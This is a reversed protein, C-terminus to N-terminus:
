TGGTSGGRVPSSSFGFSYAGEVLSVNQGDLGGRVALPPRSTKRLRRSTRKVPIHSSKKPEDIFKELRSPDPCRIEM